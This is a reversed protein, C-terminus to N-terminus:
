GFCDSLGHSVSYGPGPRSDLWLADGKLPDFRHRPSTQHITQHIRLLLSILSKTCFSLFYISIACSHHDIAYLHHDLSTWHQLHQQSKLPTNTGEENCGMEQPRRCQKACDQVSSSSSSPSLAVWHCDGQCICAPNTSNRINRGPVLSSDFINLYLNHVIFINEWSAPM